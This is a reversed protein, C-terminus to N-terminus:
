NLKGLEVDEVPLYALAQTLNFSNRFSENSNFLGIFQYKVVRKYLNQSLHFFCGYVKIAPFIKTVSNFVAKEFDVSISLPDIDLNKKILEFLTLYTEYKKNPLYAFILPL